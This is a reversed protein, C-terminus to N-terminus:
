AIPQSVILPFRAPERRGLALFVLPALRWRWGLPLPHVRWRIGLPKGLRRLRSRTLFGATPFTGFGRGYRKQWDQRREELMRKGSRARHYVPSDMIVVRGGPRVLRSAEALTRHLDTSYHFSGNFIALDLEGDGLPVQDFGAQLRTFRIEPYAAAAALGDAPDDSLDVAAVTHGETALRWSLWCNGAGLDAIRRRGRTLIKGRLLEYSAARIRWIEPHRGSTDDFPLARFYAVDDDAGWGEALRLRRYDTLFANVEATRGRTLFRWIGGDRAYEAGDAACRLRDHALEALPGRCAPCVFTSGKGPEITAAAEEKSM